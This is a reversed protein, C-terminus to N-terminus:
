ANIYRVGWAYKVSDVLSGALMIFVFDTFFEDFLIKLIQELLLAGKIFYQM